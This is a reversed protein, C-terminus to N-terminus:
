ASSLRNEREILTRAPVVGQHHRKHVEPEDYSAGDDNCRIGGGWSGGGRAGGDRDGSRGGGSRGGGGGGEICGVIVGLQKVVPVMAM